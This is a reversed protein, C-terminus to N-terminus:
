PPCNKKKKPHSFSLLLHLYDMHLEFSMSCKVYFHGMLSPSIIGMKHVNKPYSYNNAEKKGWERKESRPQM